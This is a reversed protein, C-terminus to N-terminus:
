KAHGCEVAMAALEVAGCSGGGGGGWLMGALRLEPLGLAAQLMSPESSDNGFSAIGDVATVPLGADEAAARIAACAMELESGVPERWKTYRTQGIGVICATGSKMRQGRRRRRIAGRGPGRDASDRGSSKRRSRGLLVVHRAGTRARRAG